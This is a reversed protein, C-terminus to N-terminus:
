KRSEWYEPSFFIIMTYLELRGAIMIFSFWWKSLSSYFGFNDSPGIAGFGPGINGIMTLATTFSTIVDVGNLSAIFTTIGTLAAYLFLFAAVSSVLDSRAPSGNIRITYVGHPHLMKKIELKMQKAIVVWRIVKVGGATSGSCSGIFMLSFLVTQALKPWQTYDATAFGTTSIFSTAQMAAYRLAQLINGYVPTISVTILLIAAGLIAIYAKLETNRRIDDRNGTFLYYYLSFNIGCLFMFVIIICDIATSNFGGISANRSSFGGTGVTAFSHAIADVVDMGAIWLLVAEAVTFGLYIFWLIKATQTITPTIKGKEPGTTEAKILQFGGVGFLPLLAVTLAVIGMGGLWHMQSRWLNVCRPLSEIESLITSGTTTFGSVAEFVADSFTPFFGSLYLPVAGALSSTVWCLAVAAFGSRPSLQFKSKRGHWVTIIGTVLGVAAPIMFAGIYAYERYCLAVIGPFVMTITVVALLMLNM